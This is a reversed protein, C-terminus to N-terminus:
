EMVRRVLTKLTSLTRLRESWQGEMPNPPPSDLLPEIVARVKNLFRVAGYLVLLPAWSHAVPYACLGNRM